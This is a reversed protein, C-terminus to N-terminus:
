FLRVFLFFFCVKSGKIQPPLKFGLEAAKAAVNEFGRRRPSADSPPKSQKAVVSFLKDLLDSPVLNRLLLDKLLACLEDAAKLLSENSSNSSCDLLRDVLDFVRKRDKEPITEVAARVQNLM